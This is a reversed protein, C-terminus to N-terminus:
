RERRRRGVRVGHHRQVLGRDHRWNFVRSKDRGKYHLDGKSLPDAGDAILITQAKNRSVFCGTPPATSVSCISTLYNATPYGTQSQCTEATTLAACTAENATSLYNTSWAYECTDFVDEVDETAPDTGWACSGVCDAEATFTQCTARQTALAATANSVGYAM